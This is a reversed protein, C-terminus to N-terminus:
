PTDPMMSLVNRIIQHSQNSLSNASSEQWAAWAQFYNARGQKNLRCGDQNSTNFDDPSVARDLLCLVFRDIQPRLPEIIDLVLNDRGSHLAHLFGLSRDLGRVAINKGIIGLAMTYSLSLLANVPDKPPRKTRGDFRWKRSIIASLGKFYSSAAAGEYGMLHSLDEHLNLKQINEQIQAQFKKTQNNEFSELLKKQGSLKESLIWRAIELTIRPDFRARYQRVRNELFGSLGPGIHTAEAKGRSPFLIAPIKNLALHRWVDCSVMPNGFVVVQKIMKFPIRELPQGPQEVRLCKTEVRVNIHTKDLVVTFDSM